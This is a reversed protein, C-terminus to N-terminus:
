HWLVKNGYLKLATLGWVMGITCEASFFFCKGRFMIILSLVCIGDRWNNAKLESHTAISLSTIKMASTYLIVHYYITFITLYQIPWSWKKAHKHFLVSNVDMFVCIFSCPKYGAMKEMRKALLPNILLNRSQSQPHLTYAQSKGSKSLWDCCLVQNM